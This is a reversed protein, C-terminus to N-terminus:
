YKKEFPMIGAKEAIRIIEPVSKVGLKICLNHRHIKVTKESISFESAIQKNLMGCMLYRLVETERPTLTQILKSASTTIDKESKLARSLSLAENISQLLENNKLPKELFNIAGKKLAQVTTQINGRGSIFIIPLVSDKTVLEDQLELGSKGKMKIDLLLCGTGQYTERALYEESSSFSEVHYEHATLFLSISERVSNDDDIIFVTESLNNMKLKNLDSRFNLV